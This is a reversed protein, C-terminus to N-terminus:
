IMFLLHRLRRSGCPRGHRLSYGHQGTSRQVFLASIPNSPRDGSPSNAGLCTAGSISGPTRSRSLGISQRGTVVWAETGSVQSTASPALQEESLVVSAVGGPLFTRVAPDYEVRVAAARATLLLGASAASSAGHPHQSSFGGGSLQRHDAARRRHHRRERCGSPAIWWATRGGGEPALSAM